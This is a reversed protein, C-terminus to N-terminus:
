KINKQKNNEERKKLIRQERNKLFSTGIFGLSATMIAVGFLIFFAAFLRSSDTTPFLEGYGVTTVTVVSFYFSEIWSWSDELKHFSITGIFVWFGLLGAALWIKRKLSLVEDKQKEM